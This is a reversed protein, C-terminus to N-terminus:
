NEAAIKKYRHVHTYKRWAISVGSNRTTLLRATKNTGVMFTKMRKEENSSYYM